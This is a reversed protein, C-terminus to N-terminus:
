IFDFYEKEAQKRAEIAEEKTLYNGLSKEIGQIKIKASWKLRLKVWYVGKYGSTNSNPLKSNFANKSKSSLRLNSKRNDFTNRNIHDVLEKHKAGFVRRHMYESKRKKNIWVNRVAYGCNNYFWNFQVLDQYNEDDVKCGIHSYKGRLYIVKM